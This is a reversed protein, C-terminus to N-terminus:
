LDALLGEPLLTEGYREFDERRLWALRTTEGTDPDYLTFGDDRYLWDQEASAEFVGVGDYTGVPTLWSLDVGLAGEFTERVVAEPDEDDGVERGVPRFARGGDPGATEEVLLAELERVVCAAREVTV